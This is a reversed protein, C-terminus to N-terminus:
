CCGFAGSGGSLDRPHLGKGTMGLTIVWCVSPPGQPAAGGVLGGGSVTCGGAGGVVAAGEPWLMWHSLTGALTVMSVGGGIGSDAGVSSWGARGLRVLFGGLCKSVSVPLHISHARLGIGTWLKGAQPPNFLKGSAASARLRM